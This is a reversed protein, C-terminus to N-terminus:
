STELEINNEVDELDSILDDIKDQNKIMLKQSRQSEKLKTELQKKENEKAKIRDEFPAAKSKQEEDDASSYDPTIRPGGKSEEIM